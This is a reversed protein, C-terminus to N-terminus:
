GARGAPVLAVRRSGAWIELAHGDIYVQAMVLAADDDACEIVHPISAIRGSADLRYVRYEIM